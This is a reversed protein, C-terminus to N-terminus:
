NNVAFREAALIVKDDDVADVDPAIEAARQAIYGDLRQRDPSRTVVAMSRYQNM